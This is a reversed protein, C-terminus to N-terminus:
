APEHKVGILQLYERDEGNLRMSFIAEPKGSYLKRGGSLTIAVAQVEGLEVWKESDLLKSFCRGPAFEYSM